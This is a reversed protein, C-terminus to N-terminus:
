ILVNIIVWTVLGAIYATTLLVATTIRKRTQQAAAIRMCFETQSEKLNEESQTM